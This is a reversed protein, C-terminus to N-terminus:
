KQSNNDQAGAGHGMRLFWQIKEHLPLLQLLPFQAIFVRFRIVNQQALQVSAQIFAQNTPSGNPSPTSSSGNSTPSIPLSSGNGNPSTSSTFRCGPAINALINDITFPRIPTPAVLLSSPPTTPVGFQLPLAPSSAAPELFRYEYKSGKIQEMTRDKHRFDRFSREMKEYTMPVTRSKQAGWLQALADPNVIKFHLKSPDIWCIIDDHSGSDLLKRLFSLLTTKQGRLHPYKPTSTIPTM